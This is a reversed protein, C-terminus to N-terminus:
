RPSALVARLGAVADDTRPGTTRWLIEGGATVVMPVIEDLSDIGLVRCFSRRDIYLTITADRVASDPIGARMGGDIFGAVPRYARSIVPLEYAGFRPFQERLQAAVPLWTDVDRQQHQKFAILLLNPDYELTEPLRHEVRSLSSGRVNPFRAGM